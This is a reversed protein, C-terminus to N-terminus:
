GDSIDKYEYPGILNNNFSHESDFCLKHGVHARLFDKLADQDSGGYISIPGGCSSQGIWLVLKCDDCRMYYTTSM